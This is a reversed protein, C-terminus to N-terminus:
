SGATRPRASGLVRVLLIAADDLLERRAMGGLIAECMESVAIARPQERLIDELHGLEVELDLDRDEILGDTYLLLVSGAPLSLTAQARPEGGEGREEVAGILPSHGEELRLVHGGPTRLLPPLHGANAYTLTFGDDAPVLRAYITTALQAMHLGQVLRDLRDLVGAPSDGEWAYSRLVSRLQGMAAAAHMDHGMVDGIAIGVAGDPLPLVDYWDGGVAATGSSPLFHAAIDLGPVQPISPLMSRQLTIAAEQAESYLRANDVALGARRALDVALALGEEDYARETTVIGLTMTGLIRRRAVLPVVVGSTIGVRRLLELEQDTRSSEILLADDVEAFLLPAGGRLVSPVPGPDDLRLPRLIGVQRLAEARDDDVHAVAVREVHNGHVMDVACWDALVPVVLRALRDLAESVDLTASLLSTAEAVLALRGQAHRAIAYAREREQEVRVRATVDEQVGVFNVLRGGAEHVPALSVQNWFPTGDARYNLLTVVAPRENRIADRLQDVAVPDTGEGQLFRCNLGLVASADYGTVTCFAENVYILPNDPRRPDSVTFPIATASAAQALM